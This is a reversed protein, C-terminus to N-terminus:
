HDCRRFHLWATTGCSFMWNFSTLLLKLLLNHFLPVYLFRFGCKGGQVGGFASIDFGGSFKGRAGAGIVYLTLNQMELMESVEHIFNFIVDGTIVIAKM